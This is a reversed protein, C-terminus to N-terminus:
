RNWQEFKRKIEEPVEKKEKELRKKEEEEKARGRVKTEAFRGSVDVDMSEFMKAEKRRSSGVKNSDSM